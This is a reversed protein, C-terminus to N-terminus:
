GDKVATYDGGCAKFDFRDIPLSHRVFELAAKLYLEKQNKNYNGPSTHPNQEFKYNYSGSGDSMTLRIGRPGKGSGFRVEMYKLYERQNGQNVLSGQILGKGKTPFFYSGTARELSIDSTLHKYARIDVARGIGTSLNREILDLALITTDRDNVCVTEVGAPTNIQIPVTLGESNITMANTSQNQETKSEKLEKLGKMIQITKLDEPSFDAMESTMVGILHPTGEHLVVVPGGSNGPVVTGDITFEEIGQDNNLSSIVGKHFTIKEHGLPFGAFYVKMGEHLKIAEPLFPLVDNMSINTQLAFLDLIKANNQNLFKLPSPFLTVPSSNNYNLQVFNPNNFLINHAVTLVTGDKDLLFGSAEGLPTNISCMLPRIKDYIDSTSLKTVGTTTTM